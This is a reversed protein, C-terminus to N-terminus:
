RSRELLPRLAPSVCADAARGLEERAWEDEAAGLASSAAARARESAAPCSAVEVLDELGIAAVRFTGEAALLSGETRAQRELRTAAVPTACARYHALASRLTELLAARLEDRPAGLFSPPLRALLSPGSRVHVKVGGPHDEFGVVDSFSVFRTARGCAITLGDAGVRVERDFSLAPAVFLLTASLGALMLADTLLAAGLGLVGLAGAAAGLLLSLRLPLTPGLRVVRDRADLGLAAVIRRGESLDHVPLEGVLDAGRVFRVTADGRGAVAYAFDVASRPLVLARDLWVGRRDVRVRPGFYGGRSLLGVALSVGLPISLWALPRGLFAAVLPGLVLGALLRQRIPEIVRLAFPHEIPPAARRSGAEM